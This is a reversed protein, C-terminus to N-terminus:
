DLTQLLMKMNVGKKQKPCLEQCIQCGKLLPWLYTPLIFPAMHGQGSGGPIGLVNAEMCATTLSCCIHKYETSTIIQDGYLLEGELYSAM